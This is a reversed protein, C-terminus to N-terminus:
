EPRYIPWGEAIYEAVTDWNIHVGLGPDTSPTIYSDSFNLKNTMISLRLPNLLQNHEFILSNEFATMVHIAALVSIATGVGHPAFQVNNAAAYMASRYVGTIGCARGINPMIIDVLRSDIIQKYAGPTITNEGAAIPINVKSRIMKYGDFNEPKVPEEYWYIDYKEAQRGIEIAQAIKGEYACNFDILLKIDPSVSRVAEIHYLDTEVGRGVKLKVATFGMDMLEQTRTKTEEATKFVMIPTGYAYISDHLKGGFLDYIPVGLIKGKLDWLAMDIGSIAEMMPGSSNGMANAMLMMDNWHRLINTPNRGVLVPAFIKTVYNASYIADPLGYCEGYGIHGNDCVIEVLTSFQGERTYFTYNSSPYMYQKPIKDVGGFYKAYTARLPYANIATIEM